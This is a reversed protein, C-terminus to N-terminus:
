KIEETMRRILEEQQAIIKNQLKILDFQKDIVNRAATRFNMLLRLFEYDTHWTIWGVAVGIVFMIVGVFYSVENM